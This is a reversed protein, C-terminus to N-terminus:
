VKTPGVTVLGTCSGRVTNNRLLQSYIGKNFKIDSKLDQETVYFYWRIGLSVLRDANNLLRASYFGSLKFVPRHWNWFAWNLGLTPMIISHGRSLCNWLRRLTIKVDRSTTILRVRVTATLYFTLVKKKWNRILNNILFLETIKRSINNSLYYAQKYPSKM